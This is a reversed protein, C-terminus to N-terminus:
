RTDAPPPLARTGACAPSPGREPRAVAIPPQVVLGGFASLALLLFARFPRFM